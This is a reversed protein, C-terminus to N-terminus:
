VQHLMLTIFGAKFLPTLSIFKMSLPFITNLNMTFSHKSTIINVILVLTKMQGIKLLIPNYAVIVKFLGMLILKSLFTKLQHEQPQLNIKPSGIVRFTGFRVLLNAIKSHNLSKSTLNSMKSQHILFYLELSILELRISCSLIIISLFLM